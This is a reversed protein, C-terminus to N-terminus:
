QKAEAEARMQAHWEKNQKALTDGRKADQKGKYIMAICGVATALMMYNAIRIRMRNRTREMLSQTVFAPVENINKFKGTWVLFRKELNNVKHTHEIKGADNHDLRVINM